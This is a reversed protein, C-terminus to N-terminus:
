VQSYFGPLHSPFVVQIGLCSHSGHGFPHLYKELNKREGASVLWREPLFSHASSFISANLSDRGTWGNAWRTTENRVTKSNPRSLALWSVLCALRRTVNSRKPASKADVASCKRQDRKAIMAEKEREQSVLYRPVVRWRRTHMQSVRIELSLVRPMTVTRMFDSFAGLTWLVQISVDRM